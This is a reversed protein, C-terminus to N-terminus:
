SALAKGCYPCQLGVIRYRNWLGKRNEEAVLWGKRVMARLHGQVGNTSALDFAEIIERLTPPRQKALVHRRVFRYIDRQRPTLDGKPKTAKSM